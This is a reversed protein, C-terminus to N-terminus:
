AIPKPPPTNTNESSLVTPVRIQSIGVLVSTLFARLNVEM